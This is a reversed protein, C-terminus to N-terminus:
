SREGSILIVGPEAPMRHGLAAQRWWMSRAETVEDPEINPATRLALRDALLRNIEDKRRRNM